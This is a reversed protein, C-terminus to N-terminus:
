KGLCFHRFIENLLDETSTEGVIEALARHALRLEEAVIELGSNTAQAERAAHLAEHCRKLAQVHRTRALFPAEGQSASLLRELATGLEALGGGEKASIAICDTPSAVGDDLLDRKNMVELVGQGTEAEPWIGRTEPRTADWLDIRLDAERIAERARKVGEAEVAGAAARLGATDILEAQMGSLEIEGRLLDRTTGPEASVIARDLGTLRNLLSSKGVNPAGSIVLTLRRGLAASREAEGMVQNLETTLAGLRVEVDEGDVFSESEDAFDISAEVEMRIAKLNRDLAAVRRSFEGKLSKMAARAMSKSGSAILDAVAEAQVLDLKGNHYARESFEGPQAMRAGLELCRELLMTLVIPSGHAQLEVLDEGTYSAPAQFAVALGEDLVEGQGDKFTALRMRRVPLPCHTVAEGIAIANAGSVRVM